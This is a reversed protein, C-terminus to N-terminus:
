KIERFEVTMSMNRSGGLAAPLYVAVREGSAVLIGEPKYNFEAPTVINWELSDFANGGTGVTTVTRNVSTSASPGAPDKARPTVASGGSGATTRKLIQLRGIEQSTTGCTVVVRELIFPVASSATMEILDQAAASVSVNEFTATFRHGYYM